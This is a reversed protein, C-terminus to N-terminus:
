VGKWANEHLLDLIRAYHSLQVSLSSGLHEFLQKFEGHEAPMKYLYPRIELNEYLEIVVQEANVLRSGQEVLICPTDKLRNKVFAGSMVEKQLFRYMKAMVSMRTSLEEQSMEIEDKRKLHSTVLELTPKILVNLEYLVSDYYRPVFWEPLIPATTWAIEADTPLVSGQFAIYPTQSDDQGFQQHIERLEQGVAYSVLFRIKRVHQLLGEELVNDRNLLHDVLVRSKEDTIETRQTAGERSVETAFQKFLDISVDHILGVMKWFSMWREDNLPKPPFMDDTLITSFVENTHDYYCSAKKLTGDKFPVIETNTLCNLLSKKEKEESADDELINDRINKLHYLRAKDSFLWFHKLIFNCYLDIPSILKLGLFKLLSSLRKKSALFVVDCQRELIEMEKGPIDSPVFYVRKSQLRVLGGHKTEYFPLQRLTLKDEEQLHDLSESFYTLVRLCEPNKLKEDLACSNITLMHRFSTLLSSPSRLSAVLQPALGPSDAPLFSYNLKPLLLKKLAAVLLASPSEHSRLDLVSEALSLPVLFHEVQM